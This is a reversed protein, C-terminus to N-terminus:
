NRRDEWSGISSKILIPTELIINTNEKRIETTEKIMSSPSSKFIKAFRTGSSENAYKLVYVESRVDTVRPRDYSIGNNDFEKVVESSNPTDNDYTPYDLKTETKEKVM